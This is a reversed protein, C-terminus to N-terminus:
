LSIFGHQGAWKRRLSSHHVKGPVELHSSVIRITSPRSNNKTSTKPSEPAPSPSPTPQQIKITPTILSKAPDPLAPLPLAADDPTTSSKDSPETTKTVDEQSAEPTSCNTTIPWCECSEMTSLSEGSTFSEVSSMVDTTHCVSLEETDSVELLPKINNRSIKRIKLPQIIFEGVIQGQSLSSLVSNAKNPIAPLPRGSSIIGKAVYPPPIPLPGVIAAPMIDLCRERPLSFNRL